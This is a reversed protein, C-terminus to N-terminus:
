ADRVRDCSTALIPLGPGSAGRIDQAVALRTGATISRPFEKQVIAVDGSAMLFVITLIWM